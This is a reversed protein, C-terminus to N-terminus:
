STSVPEDRNYLSAADAATLVGQYIRVPGVDGPWPDASDGRFRAFGITLGDDANWAPWNAPLPAVGEHGSGPVLIRAEGAELDYVGVLLVWRDLDAPDVTNASAHEWEVPGTASGDVPAVTFNWRLVHGTTGNRVPPIRRAGLYFASHSAGAHGVATVAFEGEPLELSGNMRRSDLRVWAAVSFSQDTRVVPVSTTWSQQAGDVVTAGGFAIGETWIPERDASLPRDRGSSDAATTGAGEDFRWWGELRASPGM